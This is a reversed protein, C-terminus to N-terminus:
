TLVIKGDPVCRASPYAPTWFPCLLAPSPPLGPSPSDTANRRDREATRCCRSSMAPLTKSGRSPRDGARFVGKEDQEFDPYREFRVGSAALEEVAKDIDEVPFNLITFAAPTHDPKPYVLVDRAGAIHLHLM